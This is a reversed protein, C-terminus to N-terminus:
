ENVRYGQMWAIHVVVSRRKVAIVVHSMTLGTEPRGCIQGKRQARESVTSIFICEAQLSRQTQRYLSIAYNAQCITTSIKQGDIRVAVHGVVQTFVRRRKIIDLRFHGLTTHSFYPKM